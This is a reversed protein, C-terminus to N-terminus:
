SGAAELRYLYDNLTYKNVLMKRKLRLVQLPRSCDNALARIFDAPLGTARSAESTSLYIKDIRALEPYVWPSELLGEQDDPRELRLVAARAHRGPQERLAMWSDLESVELLYAGNANRKSPLPNESLRVYNVVTKKSIGYIQAAEAATVYTGASGDEPTRDVNRGAPMCSLDEDIYEDLADADIIRWGREDYGAELPRVPDRLWSCVVNRSVGVREAAQSITLMDAM